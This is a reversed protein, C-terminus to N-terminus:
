SFNMRFLFLTDNGRPNFYDHSVTKFYAGVINGEDVFASFLFLNGSLENPWLDWAADGRKEFTDIPIQHEYSEIISLDSDLKYLGLIANTPPNENNMFHNFYTSDHDPSYTMLAFLNGQNEFLFPTTSTTCYGPKFYDKRALEEGNSSLLAVAPQASYFDGAGSKFFLASGVAINGNSLEVADYQNFCSTDYDSYEISYEWEQAFAKGVFLVAFAIAAIFKLKTKM